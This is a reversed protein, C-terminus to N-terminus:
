WVSKFKADLLHYGKENKVTNHSIHANLITDIINQHYKHINNDNNVICCVSSTYASEAHDAKAMANSSYLFILMDHIRGQTDSIQCAFNNDILSLTGLDPSFVFKYCYHLLLDCDYSKVAYITDTTYM